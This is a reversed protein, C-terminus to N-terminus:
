YRREMVKEEKPLHGVQGIEKVKCQQLLVIDGIHHLSKVVKSDKILRVDAKEIPNFEEVNVQTTVQSMREMMQKKSMLVEQPSGIKLSQEM